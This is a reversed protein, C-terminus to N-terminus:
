LKYSYFRSKKQSYEEMKHYNLIREKLKINKKKEIFEEVNEKLEDEKEILEYHIKFIECTRLVMKFLMGGHESKSHIFDGIEEINLVDQVNLNKDLYEMVTLDNYSVTFMFFLEILINFIDLLPYLNNELDSQIFEFFKNYFVYISKILKKIDKKTFIMKKVMFCVYKLGFEFEIRNNKINLYDMGVEIINCIDEIVIMKLVNNEKFFTKLDYKKDIISTFISPKMLIKKYEIRELITKTIFDISTFCKVMQFDRKFHIFLLVFFLRFKLLISKEDNININQIYQVLNDFKFM